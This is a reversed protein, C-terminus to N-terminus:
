SEAGTVTTSDADHMVEDGEQLRDPVADAADVGQHLGTAQEAGAGGDPLQEEGAARVLGRLTAVLDGLRSVTFGPRGVFECFVRVLYGQVRVRDLLPRHHNAAVLGFVVPSDPDLVIPTDDGKDIVACMRSVIDGHEDPRSVCRYAASRELMYGSEAYEAEIHRARDLLDDFMLACAAGVEEPVRGHVQSDVDVHRPGALGPYTSVLYEVLDGAALVISRCSVGYSM